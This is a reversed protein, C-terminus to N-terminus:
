PTTSPPGSRQTSFSEGPGCVSRIRAAVSIHSAPTTQDATVLTLVLNSTTDVDDNQPHNTTTAPFPPLSFSNKQRLSCNYYYMLRDCDCDLQCTATCHILTAAATATSVHTARAASRPSQSCLRTPTKVAVGSEHIVPWLQLKTGLIPANRRGRNPM